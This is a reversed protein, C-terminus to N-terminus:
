AVSCVAPKGTKGRATETFPTQRNANRHLVVISDFVQIQDLVMTIAPVTLSIPEPRSFAGRPLHHMRFYHAHMVDLLHKVIELFPPPEDVFGPHYSTHLDEVVYVSRESM